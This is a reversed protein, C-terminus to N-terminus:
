AALARAHPGAAGLAAISASSVPRSFLYGQLHTCGALVLADRQACTEVGEAVIAMGLAEGLGVIAKIIAGAARSTDLGRVFSQDIKVKDFPFREFYSLSSYGTGFDDMLIKIGAARLRELEVFTREVDHMVVNETVELKLRHPPLGSDALAAIVTDYVDGAHFQVPSLNVAVALHDPWTAADICAQRLLMRGLPVILGSEEAIAIFLDPRIPGRTPHTWRALAEASAMAGTDVRLVPQYVLTIEGREMAARLDLELARRDRAAEDLSPHYFCITGRGSSKAQYLAVDGCHRLESTTAAHTPALVIGVSAGLHATGMATPFPQAMAAIVGEAVARARAAPADGIVLVIFEDGGARAVLDTPEILGQLREGVAALVLDGTVHGFQDNVSKFRDLDIALLALETGSAMLENLRDVYSHRNVLGTLSDFHALRLIEAEARRVETVDESLGLLYQAPRDPGDLVIRTTRLSVRRGDSRTFENDFRQESSPSALAARDQEEYASGCAPYLERATRGIMEERPRGMLEEGARNTLLYRGTASDKVFLMAPLHDIITDLFAHAEANERELARQASEDRMVIGFGGIQEGLKCSSLTLEVPITWGAAHRAESAHHTSAGTDQALTAVEQHWHPLLSEASRGILELPHTGLMAATLANAYIIKGTIDAYLVAVPASEVMQRAIEGASRALRTEILEVTIQALAILAERETLSLRARRRSDLVNLSGLHHGDSTVLPAGAYFRLGPHEAVMPHDVFRPDGALDLVEMLETSALTHACLSDDRPLECSPLGFHSTFRAHHQDLLTVASYPVGMVLAAVRTVREFIPEALTDLTRLRALAGLRERERKAHLSSAANM